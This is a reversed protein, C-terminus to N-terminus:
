VPFMESTKQGSTMTAPVLKGFYTLTKEKKLKEGTETKV